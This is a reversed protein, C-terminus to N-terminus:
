LPLKNTNNINFGSLSLFNLGICRYLVNVQIIEAVGLEFM